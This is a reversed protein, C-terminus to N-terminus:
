GIMASLSYRFWCKQRYNQAIKFGYHNPNEEFMKPGPSINAACINRLDSSPRPIFTIVISESSLAHSRKM